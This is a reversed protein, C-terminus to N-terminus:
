ANDIEIGYKKVRRTNLESERAIKKLACTARLAIEKQQESANGFQGFKLCANIYSSLHEGKESKFLDYFEEETTNALVVEDKQNWGGKGVIRKLIDIAHEVSVSAQYVGNFKDIIEQDRIDGFFNNNEMDFLEKESEREKLYLDIIESAKETEGLERFLKVTGNLNIPSINKVNNKM